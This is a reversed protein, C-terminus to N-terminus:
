SQSESEEGLPAGWAQLSHGLRDMQAAQRLESVVWGVLQALPGTLSRTLQHLGPPKQREMNEYWDESRYLEEALLLQQQLLGFAVGGHPQGLAYQIDALQHGLPVDEHSRHLYNPGEVEGM